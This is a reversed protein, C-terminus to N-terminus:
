PFSTLKRAQPRWSTLTSSTTGMGGGCPLTQVLMSSSLLTLLHLSFICCTRIVEILGRSGAMGSATRGRFHDNISALLKRKCTFWNSTPKQQLQFSNQRFWGAVPYEELVQVGLGWKTVLGLAGTLRVKGSGRPASSQLGTVGGPGVAELEGLKEAPCSSARHRSFSRPGRQLLWASM